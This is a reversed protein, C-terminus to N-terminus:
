AVLQRSGALARHLRTMGFEIGVAIDTDIDDILDAQGDAVHEDVGIVSHDGGGVGALLAAASMMREPSPRSGEPLARLTKGEGSSQASIKLSKQFSRGACGEPATRRGPSRRRSTRQM